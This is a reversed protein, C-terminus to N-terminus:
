NLFDLEDEAGEDIIDQPDMTHIKNDIFFCELNKQIKFGMKRLEDNFLSKKVEESINEDRRERKARKNQPWHTLVIVANQIFDDGFINIFLSLMDKINQDFRANQGNLVILFASIYKESKLAAVM